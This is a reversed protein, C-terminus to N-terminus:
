LKNIKDIQGAQYCTHILTALAIFFRISRWPYDPLAYSAIIALTAIAAVIVMLRKRREKETM